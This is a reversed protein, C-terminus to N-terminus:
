SVKNMRIQIQDQLINYKKGVWKAAINVHILILLVLSYMFNALRFCGHLHVPGEWKWPQQWMTFPGTSWQNAVCHKPIEPSALVSVPQAPFPLSFSSLLHLWDGRRHCGWGVYSRIMSYLLVSWVKDGCDPGIMGDAQKVDSCSAQYASWM